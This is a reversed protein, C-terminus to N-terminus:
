AAKVIIFAGVFMILVGALGSASLPKGLVWWSLLALVAVHFMVLANAYGPNTAKQIAYFHFIYAFFHLAAISLLTKLGVNDMLKRVLKTKDKRIALIIASGIGIIISYALFVTLASAQCETKVVLFDGLGFLVAALSAAAVWSAM